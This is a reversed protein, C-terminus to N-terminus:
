LEPVWPIENVGYHKSLYRSLVFLYDSLRNIYKIVWPNVESEEAMALIRREARRCVTRSIHCYSVGPHGGPLVFHKMPPLDSEMRDMEKELTEIIAEDYDLKDRLDTVNSDTALYAGIVFLKHQIDIIQRETNEDVEYSRIMGVFTNLEDVTGYAELRYHNKAVRTGGILSTKGKDGTKTYVLSKSM